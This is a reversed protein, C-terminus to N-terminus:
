KDSGLKAVITNIRRTRTEPQKADNVQRVFEKRKSPASAHFAEMAGPKAALAAALDDPLEYVRPETDLEIGVDVEEGGRVGTLARNEASVGVMYVGGMVAVSSRYTQGNMTIRVAPKKGAGLVEIIEPPIEIGTTNKGSQKIVTRFVLM